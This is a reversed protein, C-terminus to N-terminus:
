VWRSSPFSICAFSNRAEVLLYMPLCCSFVFCLTQAIQLNQYLFFPFHEKVTDLRFSWWQPLLLLGLFSLGSVCFHSVFLPL